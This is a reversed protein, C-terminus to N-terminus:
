AELLARKLRAPYFEKAKVQRVMEEIFAAKMAAAQRQSEVEADDGGGLAAALDAKYPVSVAGIEATQGKTFLNQAIDLLKAAQKERAAAVEAPPMEGDMPAELKPLSLLSRSEEELTPDATLAGSKTLKEVADAFVAVDRQELRSCRLRPYATVGPWNYNVWQRLLHKCVTECIYNAIGGLAMLLYSTKDRSM